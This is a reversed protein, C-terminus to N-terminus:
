WLPMRFLFSERDRDRSRPRRTYALMAHYQELASVSPQRITTSLAGAGSHHYFGMAHGLEHTILGEIGQGPLDGLMCPIGFDVGGHDFSETSNSGPYRSDLESNFGGTACTM